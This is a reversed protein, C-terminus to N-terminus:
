KAPSGRSVGITFVKNLTKEQRLTTRIPLLRPKKIPKFTLVANKLTTAVAQGLACVVDPSLISKSWM